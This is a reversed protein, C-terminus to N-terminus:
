RNPEQEALRDLVRAARTLAARDAPHQAYRDRQDRLRAATVAAPHRRPLGKWRPGAGPSAPAPRDTTASSTLDDM